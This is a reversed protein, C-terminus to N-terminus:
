FVKSNANKRALCFVTHRACRGRRPAIVIPAGALHGAGGVGLRGLRGFSGNMEAFHVGGKILVQADVGMGGSHFIKRPPRMVQDVAPFRQGFQDTLLGAGHTPAEGM